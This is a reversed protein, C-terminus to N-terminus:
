LNFSIEHGFKESFFFFFISCVRMWTYKLKVKEMGEEKVIEFSGESIEEVSFHESLWLDKESWAELTGIHLPWPSTKRMHSAIIVRSFFKLKM